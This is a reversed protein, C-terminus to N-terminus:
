NIWYGHYVIVFCVGWLCLEFIISFVWILLRTLSAFNPAFFFFPLRSFTVKIVPPSANSNSDSNWPRSFAASDFNNSNSAALPRIPQFDYSPVIDDKSIGNGRSAKEEEDEDELHHHHHNHQNQPPEKMLDIFDKSQLQTTSSSSSSGHAHTLDM